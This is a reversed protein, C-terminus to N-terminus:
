VKNDFSLYGVTADTLASLTEVGSSTNFAHDMSAEWVIHEGRHAAAFKKATGHPIVDDLTGAAIFAPGAYQSLEKLPDFRSVELFFQHGLTVSAGWPLTLTTPEASNLGRLFANKGVLGPFSVQPEGVAAWLAVGSPRNTRGAAAAAVLGGQSWGLLIVEGNGLDPQSAIFDMAALCDDIQASYSSEETSGGSDGWGRFDIRLSSHDLDALKAAVYEFIGIGLSPIALENRTGAFGHLLLFTPNKHSEVDNVTGVITHAGSKFSVTKEVAM